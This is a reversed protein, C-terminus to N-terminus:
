TEKGHEARRRLGIHGANKHLVIRDCRHGREGWPGYNIGQRGERREVHRLQATPRAFFKFLGLAYKSTSAVPRLSDSVLFVTSINYRMGIEGVSPM